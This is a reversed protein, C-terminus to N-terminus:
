AAYGRSVTPSERQMMATVCHYFIQKAANFPIGYGDSMAQVFQTLEPLDAGKLAELNMSNALMLNPGTKPTKSFDVGLATWTGTSTITAPM